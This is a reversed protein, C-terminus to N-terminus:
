SRWKLEVRARGRTFNRSLSSQCHVRSFIDIISLDTPNAHSTSIFSPSLDRTCFSVRSAPTCKNCCQQLFSLKQRTRPPLPESEKIKYLSFDRLKRWDEREQIKYRRSNQGAQRLGTITFTDRKIWIYRMVFLDNIYFIIVFFKLCYLLKDVKLIYLFLFNSFCLSM